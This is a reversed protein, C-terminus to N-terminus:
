EEERREYGQLQEMLWDLPSASGGAEGGARGAGYAEELRAEIKAAAASDGRDQAIALAKDLLERPPRNANQPSAAAVGLGSGVTIRTLDDALRQRQTDADARTFCRAFTTALDAGDISSGGEMADAAAVIQAGYRLCLAIGEFASADCEVSEGSAAVLLQCDGTSRVSVQRLRSNERAALRDLAEPPLLPGALDIGHWLQLLTLADATEAMSVDVTTSRTIPLPMVRDPSTSRLLAVFGTPSVSLEHLSIPVRTSLGVVALLFPTPM